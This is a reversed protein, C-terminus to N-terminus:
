SRSIWKRFMPERCPLLVSIREEEVLTAMLNDLQIEVRERVPLTVLRVRGWAPLVGALLSAAAVVGVLWWIRRRESM